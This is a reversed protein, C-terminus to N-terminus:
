LIKFLLNSAEDFFGAGFENSFKGDTRYEMEYPKGKDPLYYVMFPNGDKLEQDNAYHAESVIVQTKRILYESHTEVIFHINYKEYAELFMDALRSQFKPHLHMEPEELIILNEDCRINDQSGSSWIKSHHLINDMILTEIRLLLAVLQTVGVGQDALLTKENNNNLTSVKLGLGDEVPTILLEDAVGLEKLWNNIFDGPKFGSTSLYDAEQPHHSEDSLLNLFDRKFDLYATLTTFFEGETYLRKVEASNPGFYTMEDPLMMALIDKFTWEVFHSFLRLSNFLDPLTSDGSDLHMFIGIIAQLNCLKWEVWEPEYDQILRSVNENNKRYPFFDFENDSPLEIYDSVGCCSLFEHEKQKFYEGFNAHESKEFDDMIISLHATYDDPVLKCLHTRVKSKGMNWIEYLEPMYLETFFLTKYQFAKEFLSFDHNLIEYAKRAYPNDLYPRDVYFFVNEKSYCFAEINILYDCSYKGVIEKYTKRKKKYIDRCLDYDDICYTDYGWQEAFDKYFNPESHFLASYSEIDWNLITNFFKFFSDKLLFFNGSSLFDFHQHESGQGSQYLLEGSVKKIELHNLYGNDQIDNSNPNFTFEVVVDEGLLRSHTTVEFSISEEKSGRHLVQHFNGLNLAASTKSFDLKHASLNPTVGKRLDEKVSDVYTKLLALSKNVSSKGSSNSGTMITIPKMEFSVGDEDFTRFNKITIKLKM